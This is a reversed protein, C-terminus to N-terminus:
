PATGRGDLAQLWSRIAEARGDSPFLFSYAFLCVHPSHEAALDLERRLVDLSRDPGVHIGTVVRVPTRLARWAGARRAFEVPDKTYNMPFVADVLGERAWRTSDRLHRDTPGEPTAGVAASLVTGPREDEIMSGIARVLKTVQDARWRAWEPDATRPLRGHEAHFLAVTRPDRPYDADAAVLDDVFRVYDLHLGDVEYGAVIERFVDVLYRRVEPLCPNLSVYFGDVLPQRDGRQDFWHWDPRALWLQRPDTPPTKGRWSPMVNVWAHLQVGRAHAAEVAVALPDFGPDGGGLEDAWPELTSRWFATGNGRVQFMLTNFGADSSEVVIRRIDAESRYDFRTVWLARTPGASLPPASTSRCGSPSVALALALPTLWRVNM